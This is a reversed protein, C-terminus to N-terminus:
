PPTADHADRRYSELQARIHRAENEAGIETARRLAREATELAREHQGAAAYATALTSLATPDEPGSLEVAREALRVAQDADRLKPDPHTALIWAAGALPRPTYPDLRTAERFHRLAEDRRNLRLLVNALNVHAFADSPDYRVAARLHFHAAELEGRQQLAQGYNRHADVYTPLIELARRYHHLAEDTRGLAILAVALNNHPEPDDPDLEIARGLPLLAEDHRGLETLAVGVNMHGRANGPAADVVTQWLVLASRYDRIRMLTTASLPIVIAILLAVGIWSPRAARALVADVLVVGAVVLAALALYMRHEFALDVIPMVSSTPALVLFFCAGLFGLPPVRWLAWLTAVGLATLLATPLLIAAATDAVPWGYDLVLPHPWIVLKLYHVIVGPQSRAYEIASLEPLGFGAWAAGGSLAGSEFRLLLVLWTAALGLYLASRARLAAGFSGSLFTRDYLLVALPAGAMVEKTGMGLGCCVCAALTWAGRQASEDSRIACYLTLLYLLAMLSEARQIVYAVAQTALPHVLWVLAAAFALADASDDYRARLPRSRLTRRVIGYLTLAALVHVTLNFLHYGTPDMGGVAYNLALSLNLIPRSSDGLAAAPPWLAGVRDHRIWELDDFVFPNSLSGAYLLVGAAVLLWPRWM